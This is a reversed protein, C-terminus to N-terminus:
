AAVEPEKVEQAPRDPEPNESGKQCRMAAAVASIGIKGYRAELDASPKQRARTSDQTRMTGEMSNSNHRALAVNIRPSYPPHPWSHQLFCSKKNAM